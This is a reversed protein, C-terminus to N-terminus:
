FRYCISLSNLIQTGFYKDNLNLYFELENIQSDNPDTKIDKITKNSEKKLFQLDKISFESLDEPTADILSGKNKKPSKKVLGTIM